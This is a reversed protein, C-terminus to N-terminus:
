RPLGRRGRGLYGYQYILGPEPHPKPTFIRARKKLTKKSGNPDWGEFELLIKIVKM